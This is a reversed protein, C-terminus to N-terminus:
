YGRLKCFDGNVKYGFLYGGPVLSSMEKCPLSIRENCRKIDTLVGLPNTVIYKCMCVCLQYTCM